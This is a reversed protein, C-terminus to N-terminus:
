VVTHQHSPAGTLGSIHVLQHKTINSYNYYFQTCNNTQVATISNNYM